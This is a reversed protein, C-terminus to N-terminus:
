VLQSSESDGGWGRFSRSRLLYDRAGTQNSMKTKSASVMNGLHM